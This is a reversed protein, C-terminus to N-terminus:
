SKNFRWTHSNYATFAILYGVLTNFAKALLMNIFPNFQPTKVDNIEIGVSFQFIPFLGCM